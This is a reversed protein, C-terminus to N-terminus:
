NLGPSESESDSSGDDVILYIGVGLAIVALAILWGNGNGANGLFNLKREDTISKGEHDLQLATLNGLRFTTVEDQGFRVEALNVRYYTNDLYGVTGNFNRTASLNFGVWAPKEEISQPGFPLTLRVGATVDRDAALGEFREFAYAPSVVASTFAVATLGGIFRKWM